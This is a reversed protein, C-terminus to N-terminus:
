RIIGRLRICRTVHGEAEAPIPVRPPWRGSGMPKLNAVAIPQWGSETM